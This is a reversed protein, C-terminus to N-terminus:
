TLASVRVTVIKGAYTRGVRLKQRTVMIAGDRPVKRQVSVPGPAPPPLATAAIRAGRLTGREGAPIPYPLTKALAGDHVVHFLHGDLRLTVGRRALETGIKISQGALDAIGNADVAREIEVVTGGPLAGAPSASPFRAAARGPAGRMRLTALDEATLNSPVTKVLQGDILIHVSFEDAWVHARQGARAAGIKIRQVTPLVPLLGSAGIVTDFEVAGASQAGILFPM